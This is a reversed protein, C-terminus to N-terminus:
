LFKAWITRMLSEVVHAAEGHNALAQAVRSTTCRDSHQRYARMAEGLALERRELTRTAEGWRSEFEEIGHLIDTSM